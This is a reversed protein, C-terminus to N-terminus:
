SAKPPWCVRAYDGETAAQFDKDRANWDLIKGTANEIELDVYDGYHDRPMFGPVYDGQCDVFVRGEGDLFQYAFCDRVKSFLHITTAEGGGPMDAELAEASFPRWNRIVGKPDIDFVLNGSKHFANTLFAPRASEEIEALRKRNADKLTVSLYDDLEFWIRITSLEVKTPVTITIETM